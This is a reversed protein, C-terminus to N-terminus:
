DEERITWSQLRLRHSLFRDKFDPLSMWSGDFRAEEFTKFEFPLTPLQARPTVTVSNAGMAVDLMAFLLEAPGLTKGNVRYHTPLFSDPRYAAALTRVEDATLVAPQSASLPTDLFGRVRGPRFPDDTFCFHAAAAFLDSISYTGNTVDGCLSMNWFRRELRAKIEPLRDKTLIRAANERRVKEALEDYNTFIFRDDKNVARILNEFEEYFLKQTESSNKAAPEWEYMPHRNEGRYNVCDWFNSHCARTPHHAIVVRRRDAVGDLFAEASYPYTHHHVRFTRDEYFLNEMAFDYSLHLANCFHVARGNYFQFVSGDYVPMGLREYEYMAVYSLNNGPPCAVDMGTHM